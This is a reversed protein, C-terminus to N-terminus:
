TASRVWISMSLLGEFQRLIRNGSPLALVWERCRLSWLLRQRRCPPSWLLGNERHLSLCAEQIVAKPEVVIRLEVGRVGNTKGLPSLAIIKLVRATHIEERKKRPSLRNEAAKDGTQTRVSRIPPEM